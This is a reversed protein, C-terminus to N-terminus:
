VARVLAAAPALCLPSVVGVGRLGCLKWDEKVQSVEHLQSGDVFGSLLGGERLYRRRHVASCGCLGLQQAIQVELVGAPPRVHEAFLHPLCARRIAGARAAVPAWVSAGDCARPRVRVIAGPRADRVRELRERARARPRVRARGFARVREFARM